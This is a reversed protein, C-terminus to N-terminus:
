VYVGRLLQDFSVSSWALSPSPMVPPMPMVPAIPPVPMVPPVPPVSHIPPIPGGAAGDIYAVANGSKDRFWGDRFYGLHHGGYSFLAGNQIVARRAYTADYVVGRRRDLWGVPSPRRNWIPTLV